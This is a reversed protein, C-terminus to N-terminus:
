PKQSNIRCTCHTCKKCKPVADSYFLQTLRFIGVGPLILVWLYVALYGLVHAITTDM